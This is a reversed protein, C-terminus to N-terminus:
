ARRWRVTAKQGALHDLRVGAPDPPPFSGFAGFGGILSRVMPTLLENAV